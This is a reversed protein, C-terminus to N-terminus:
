RDDDSAPVIPGSTAPRGLPGFRMGRSLSGRKLMIVDDTESYICLSFVASYINHFVSSFHLLIFTRTAESTSWLLIPRM